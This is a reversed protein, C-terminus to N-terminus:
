FNLELEGGDLVARLNSLLRDTYVERVKFLVTGNVAIISKRDDSRYFELVDRTTGYADEYGERYTFVLTIFPDSQEEFYLEEGISTILYQYLKRFSDAQVEDGNCTIKNSQADGEIKFLYSGEETIIELTDVSYIYPSIPRRSMVNDLTFTYWPANAKDIAYIGEVGEIMAYYGIVTTLAPNGETEAGTVQVIEKGLRLVRRKGGYKFTVTCYPDDLGAEAMNEETQELWICSAMSLGYVGYCLNQGKISDVETNIPTIFRHSNFTTIIADEDEAADAIDFMYRIEVPEDFDGREIILYDLEKPDNQSYGETMVLSAFDRIDNYASGVSYYSVQHVDRSDALRFYAYNTAAPNQIGFCLSASSGDTFKVEVQSAPNELGYKELDEANEEVLEKTTLGAMNNIFARITADSPAVGLLEGSTWYVKTESTINGEEDATTVVREARDLTFRGHENKVTLSQVDEPEKDTVTVSTDPVSSSEESETGEAPKTLLLVMLLVGLVLLVGAAIIVTKTSKSLKM